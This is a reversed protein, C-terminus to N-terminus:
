RSWSTCTQPQHGAPIASLLSVSSFTQMCTTVAPFHVCAKPFLKCQKPWTHDHRSVRYMTSVLLIAFHTLHDCGCEVKDATENLVRCNHSDWAGFGDVHMTCIFSFIDSYKLLYLFHRLHDNSNCPTSASSSMAICALKPDNQMAEQDPVMRFCMCTKM